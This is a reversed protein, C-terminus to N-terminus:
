VGQKLIYTNQLKKFIIEHAKKDRCLYIINLFVSVAEFNKTLM